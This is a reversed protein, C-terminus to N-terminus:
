GLVEKVWGEPLDIKTVGISYKGKGCCDDPITGMSHVDKPDVEFSRVVIRETPKLGHSTGWWKVMFEKYVRMYARAEDRTAMCHFVGAEMRKCRHQEFVSVVEPEGTDTNGRVRFIKWLRYKGNKNKRLKRGVPDVVYCM